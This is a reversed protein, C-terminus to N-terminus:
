AQRPSEDLEAIVTAATVIRFPLNPISRLLDRNESVLTPLGLGEIHSAVVADGREHMGRGSPFSDIVVSPTM